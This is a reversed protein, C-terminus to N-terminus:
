LSQGQDELQVYCYMNFFTTIHCLLILKAPCVSTEREKLVQISNNITANLFGCFQQLMSKVVNEIRSIGCNSFNDHCSSSLVQGRHCKFQSPFTWTIDIFITVQVNNAPSTPKPKSLNKVACNLTKRIPQHQGKCKFGM